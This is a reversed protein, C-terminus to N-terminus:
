RGEALDTYKNTFYMYWAQVSIITLSYQYLMISESHQKIEVEVLKNQNNVVYSFKVNDNKHSFVQLYEL